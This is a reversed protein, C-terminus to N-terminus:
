HLWLAAATIGAATLVLPFSHLLWYALLIPAGAAIHICAWCWRLGRFVGSQFYRASYAHREWVQALSPPQAHWLSAGNLVMQVRTAASAVHRDLAASGPTSAERARAPPRQANPEPIERESVVDPMPLGADHRDSTTTM